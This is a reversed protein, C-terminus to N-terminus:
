KGHVARWVKEPTFPMDLQRVGLHSLADIVANAICPTSGITAAEGIGKVGMPNLPTPTETRHTEYIPFNDARPVNYDMFSGSVLQGGEDYLAQELLAQGVGQAIGGHVQGEILLPNIAPGCDDVTVYRVIRIQGNDPDIEIIAMHTGFPYTAGPPSFDEDAQLGDPLAARLEDPLTDSYAAAAVDTWSVAAQPSGAVSFQGNDLRMDEVAAELLHAAIAKAKERVSESNRMVASGGVPASRSGFTGIGRPVVATDGHKVTINEMPLQLTNAAIQAWATEHGQGHPSTGTLVTATADANIIVTGAEWPGFGCIEVYSALGIGMLKGGNARRTAQEARLAPYDVLELARNLSKAYEGSDYIAGTPTNYPFQEPAIFNKRRIEVPDIGLDDALADMAREIMFAAEPRGAGRYPENIGKNTLVGVAETRAYPINYVGTMMMGTLPPIGPTVRSYYAGCDAIIKLDVAQVKGEATAALRVINIQDRGHSTTQLDESRTAIWQIPRGVKKALFPALVEEAFVNSKAGFGGGVEPAIARIKAQDIGLVQAVEEKISHPIQTSTWITYSETAGDYIATVARPEMATPLLRQNVIRLEIVKEAAAFAASVDNGGQWRFAINNGIHEHLVPADPQLAKEPDVVVALPTYDVVITELADAAAYKNEAVVVAVPDGVHRVKDSALPYRPIANFVPYNEDAGIVMPLPTAMQDNIDAATIIALVGPMAAADRTDIRNITAHGYPSRLVMMVAMNELVIDGTYKGQGTILAPDERRKIRVGMLQPAAAQVPPM